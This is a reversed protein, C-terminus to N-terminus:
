AIVNRDSRAERAKYVTSTTLCRMPLIVAASSTSIQDVELTIRTADNWPRMV